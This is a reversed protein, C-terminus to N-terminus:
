RTTRSVLKVSVAEPPWNEFSYVEYTWACASSAAGECPQAHRLTILQNRAVATLGHLDPSRWISRVGNRDCLYVIARWSGLGNSGSRNGFSLMSLQYPGTDLWDGEFSYGAFDTDQRGALRAGTPEWMYSDIVAATGGPGHSGLWVVYAIAWLREKSRPGWGSASKVYLGGDPQETWRRSIIKLLQNRLAEDSIAPAADLQRIVFEGVIRKLEGSDRVVDRSTHTEFRDLLTRVLAAERETALLVVSSRDQAAVTGPAASIAVILSWAFALVSVRIIIRSTM